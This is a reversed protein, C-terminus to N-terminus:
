TSSQLLSVSVQFACIFLQTSIRQQRLKSQIIQLLYCPWYQKNNLRAEKFDVKQLSINQMFFMQPPTATVIYSPHANYRSPPSQVIKYRMCSCQCRSASCCQATANAAMMAVACAGAFTAYLLTFYLATDIAFIWDARQGKKRFQSALLVRSPSYKVLNSTVRREPNAQVHRISRSVSPTM